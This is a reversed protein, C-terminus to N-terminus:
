FFYTEIMRQIAQTDINGDIDDFTFFVDRWPMYGNLIYQELRRKFKERYIPDSIMGCHELLKFRNETRVAIKFDPAILENGLVLNEEYRYPIRRDYLLNAIIAESKSRVMDGKLTRHQLKDPRVDSKEYAEVEWKAFDFSNPFSPFDENQYVKPLSAMVAAPDTTRYRRLYDEMLRQNAKVHKLMTEWFRRQQLDRVGTQDRNGIYIYEGDELRRYYRKGKVTVLKLKGEPLVALQQECWQGLEMQEALEWEVYEKSNRM